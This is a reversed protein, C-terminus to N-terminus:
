GSSRLAVPLTEVAALYTARLARSLDGPKGTGVPAGDISVVPTVFTTASTVFAERAAKAEAVTFGRQELELGKEAAVGIIAQRTIGPLVAHDLHRTVLRNGAAVIWANTSAGETVIGGDDVFWAEHAGAERAAQKALVNPLLSVSKIDCRKWRIDPMTRVAIGAEARAEAKAFDFHRLTIVLAPPVDDPFAHDRKAAGRTVQLYLLANRLRNRRLLERTVINLGARSLPMAIKLERLSRELRRWHGEEDLMRGDRLACVEYVGDAFQYGRDEVHVMADALPVFRGNVYAIQSM